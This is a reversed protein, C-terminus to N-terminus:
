QNHGDSSLCQSMDQTLGVAFKRQLRCGEEHFANKLSKRCASMFTDNLIEQCTFRKFSMRDIKKKICSTNRFNFNFKVPCLRDGEKLPHFMERHMSISGDAPSPKNLNINKYQVIKNGNYLWYRGPFFWTGSDAVCEIKLKGLQEGVLGKSNLFEVFSQFDNKDISVHLSDVNAYCIRLKDFGTLFEITEMMKVRARAIVLAYLSFVNSANNIRPSELVVKDFYAKLDFRNRHIHVLFEANTLGDPKNLGYVHNLFTAADSLSAFKKVNSSKGNPVSHLVTLYM